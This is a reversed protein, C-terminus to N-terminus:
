KIFEDGMVIYKKRFARFMAVIEEVRKVFATLSQSKWDKLEQVTEEKTIRDISLLQIALNLQLNHEKKKIIKKQKPKTLIM